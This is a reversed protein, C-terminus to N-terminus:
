NDINETGIELFVMSMACLVVIKFTFNDDCRFRAPPFAVNRERKFLPFHEELYPESAPATNTHVTPACM